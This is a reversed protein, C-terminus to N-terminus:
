TRVMWNVAIYPPLAPIAEGNGTELVTLGTVQSSISGGASASGLSLGTTASNVSIGTTSSGSAGSMAGDALGTPAASDANVAAAAHTHGPDTVAHTHGPDSITHGHPAPTFTHNHGPDNIAHGHEPLQDVTLTIAAAGGIAFLPIDSTAGMPMKGRLDPLSFTTDTSGFRNGIVQYLRPFSAKAIAQGNCLLWGNGPEVAALTPVISGAPCLLELIAAIATNPDNKADYTRTRTRKFTFDEVEIQKVDGAM